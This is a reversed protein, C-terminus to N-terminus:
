MRSSGKGGTPVIPQTCCSRVIHCESKPQSHHYSVLSCRFILMHKPFCDFPLSIPAHVSRQLCPPSSFASIEKKGKIRLRECPGLPRILELRMASCSSGLLSQYRMLQASLLAYTCSRGYRIIPVLGDNSVSPAVPAIRSGSGKGTSREQLVNM